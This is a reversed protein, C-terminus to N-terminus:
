NRSSGLSIKKRIGSTIGEGTNFYLQCVASCLNLIHVAYHGSMCTKCFVGLIKVPYFKRLQSWLLYLNIEMAIKLPYSVFNSNNMEETHFNIYFVRAQCFSPRKKTLNKHTTM